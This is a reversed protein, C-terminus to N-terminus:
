FSTEIEESVMGSLLRVEVIRATISGNHAVFRVTMQEQSYFDKPLEYVNYNVNERNGDLKVQVLQKGEILVEFNSPRDKDFYSVYLFRANDDENRLIYSFWGTAERWQTGNDAGTLSQEFQVNHDSEPQQQGANVRDVTLSDLTAMFTNEISDLRADAIEISEAQPWYIIYRADHIQYFPVLERQGVQKNHYVNNLAFRLEKASILEPNKNLSEKDGILMPVERLPVQPGKAIHGGRSDDALLGDMQATGSVSALVIPGYAFAYYDSGDPMQEVHSNMTFKIDVVDGKNWRKKLTVYQGPTSQINQKKGNVFIEFEGEKVWSPYRLKLEFQTRKASEILLRTSSEEPFSTQQTIKVNKEQWDLTSPIFLNVWLQDDRHAYIFEGYKSHNELGSGVCCWFSTHPQSYVRYHDPRMPTFYVFGGHEPHQTSLIHNYLAREYYDVYRVDRETQFFQTSLKLMNYTNCTEPGEVSHIMNSFDDIPHFHEYSSNGGIAVSRNEVVTEWFFRAASDWSEEGVIDAIRKAGIIKPIQTNAHMGTLHDQHEILPDLFSEHTFQKALKLYRDDGSIVAVDAFIENLGGHESRLMDQIQEESLGEVLRVAWDTMKILMEKAESIDAIVYADRLGAYIKHINYLPVWKRNLDFNGAAIKGAQIDNWLLTSGPVGGIYGTGVNDQCRKLESLMYDLRAKIDADKTSAYMLSLATVYHGGIHGDLGSNEWNTYSEVKPTLGAERLYPALLRDPELDLLYKKNVDQAHKFPSELLEVRDLPFLNVQQADLQIQAFTSSMAMGFCLM